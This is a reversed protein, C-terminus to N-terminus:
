LICQRVPQHGFKHRLRPSHSVAAEGVVHFNTVLFGAPDIIVASGFSTDVRFRPKETPASIDQVLRKTYVSVVAPASIDVADAYSALHRNAAPGIAPMLDPRLLIVVFAAALGVVISQLLFILASKVGTM